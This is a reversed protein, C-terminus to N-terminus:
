RKDTCIMEPEIEPSIKEMSGGNPAPYVPSRRFFHNRNALEVAFFSLRSM